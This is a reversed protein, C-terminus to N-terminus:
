NLQAIVVASSVHISELIRPTNHVPIELVDLTLSRGSSESPRLIFQNYKREFKVKDAGGRRDFIQLPIKGKMENARTLRVLAQVGEIIQRRLVAPESLDRTLLLV